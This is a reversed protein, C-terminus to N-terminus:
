ASERQAPSRRKAYRRVEERQAVTISGQPLLDDWVFDPVDSDDLDYM